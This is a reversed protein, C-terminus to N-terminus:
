TNASGSPVSYKDGSVHLRKRKGMRYVAPYLTTAKTGPRLQQVSKVIEGVTMPSGHEGIVHVILEPFTKESAKIKVPRAIGESKPPATSRVAAGGQSGALKVIVGKIKEVRAEAELLEGRLRELLEDRQKLLELAGDVASAEKPEM